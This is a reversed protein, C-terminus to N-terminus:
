FHRDAHRGRGRLLPPLDHGSSAKIGKSPPAGDKRGMRMMYELALDRLANENADFGFLRKGVWPAFSARKVADGRKGTWPVFNGRKGMMPASILSTWPTFM